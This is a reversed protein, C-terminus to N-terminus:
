LSQVKKNYFPVKNSYHRSIFGNRGLGLDSSWANKEGTNRSRRVGLSVGEVSELWIRGQCGGDGRKGKRTWARLRVLGCGERAGFNRLREFPGEIWWKRGVDGSM